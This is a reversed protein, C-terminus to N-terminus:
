KPKRFPVWNEAIGLIVLLGLIAINAGPRFLMFVMGLCILIRPLPPIKLMLHLLVASGQVFFLIASIVLINWGTIELIEFLSIRGLLVIGLSLSFIWIFAPPVQFILFRRGELNAIDQRFFRSIILAFQRNIWWFVLSSFLIGGRLGYYVMGSIFEEQDPISAGTSSFTELQELIFLRLVPDHIMFLLAPIFILTCFVAGIVMRGSVDGFFQINGLSVSMPTNIWSFIVVMATYYLANWQLLFLDASRYMYFWLSVIINLAIAFIGAAWAAKIERLFATLALPFLFFIFFNGTRYSIVSSIAGILVIGITSLEERRFLKNEV